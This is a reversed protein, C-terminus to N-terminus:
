SNQSRYLFAFFTGLTDCSANAPRGPPTPFLSVLDASLALSLRFTGTYRQPSCTDRSSVLTLVPHTSVLDLRTSLAQGPALVPLSPVLDLRTSLAQGPALVPVSPVLDLSTLQAQKLILAPLTLVLDLSSCTCTVQGSRTGSSCPNVQRSWPCVSRTSVSSCIHNPGVSRARVSSCNIRDNFLRSRTGVSRARLGIEVRILTNVRLKRLPACINM